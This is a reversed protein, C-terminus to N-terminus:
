KNILGCIFLILLNSILLLICKGLKPNSISTSIEVGTINKLNKNCEKVGLILIFIKFM